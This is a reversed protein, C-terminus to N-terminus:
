PAPKSSSGPLSRKRKRYEVVTLYIIVLDFVTLLVLGVSHTDFWRYAQYFVFLGTVVILALYAWLRRRLIEVVLFIKMVGHSLLYLASFVLSATTLNHSSKLVHSAIFDHPDQSLEHQTLAAALWNLQEPKIFLLLIGGILELVGDAAKLLLGAEFAKDALTPKQQTV